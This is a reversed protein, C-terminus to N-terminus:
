DYLKALLGVNDKHSPPEWGAPKILDPLNLPNPRSAKVGVEKQMNMEHVRDWALDADIDLTDLTGIAVVCLDILADTVDEASKADRMEDLEEQLFRIRFELFAQLKEKDFERVISNVGYKTHMEAINKVWSTQTKPHLPWDDREPHCYNFYDTM